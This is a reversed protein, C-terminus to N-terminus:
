RARLGQRTVVRPRRGHAAASAVSSLGAHRRRIDYAYDHLRRAPPENRPRTPLHCALVLDHEALEAVGIEDRLHVIIEVVAELLLDDFTDADQELAPPRGVLHEGLRQDGA